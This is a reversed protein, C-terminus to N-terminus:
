SYTREAFAIEQRRVEDRLKRAGLLVIKLVSDKASEPFRIVLIAILSDRRVHWPKRTVTTLRDM